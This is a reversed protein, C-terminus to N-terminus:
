GPVAALRLHWAAHRVLCRGDAQGRYLAAPALLRSSRLAVRVALAAHLLLLLTLPAVAGCRAALRTALRPPCLEALSSLPPPLLLASACAGGVLLWGSLSALGLAALRLCPARLV